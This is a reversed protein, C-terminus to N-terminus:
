AGSSDKNLLTDIFKLQLTTYASRLAAHEKLLALSFSDHSACASPLAAADMAAKHCVAKEVKSALQKKLASPQQQKGTLDDVPSPCAMMSCMLSMTANSYDAAPTTAPPVYHGIRVRTGLHWLHIAGLTDGTMLHTADMSLAMATVQTNQGHLIYFRRSSRFAEDDHNAAAEPGDSTVATDFVDYTQAASRSWSPGRSMSAVYLRGSLGGGILTTELADVLLSTIPEPMKLEYICKGHPLAYM